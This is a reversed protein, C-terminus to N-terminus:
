RPPVLIVEVAFGERSQKALDDALGKPSRVVFDPDYVLCILHKYGGHQSYWVADQSLQKGLEKDGLQDRTKKLEIVIGEQRLVLDMRTSSGAHSPTPEEERVEEFSVSLLARLLDHADHEDAVLFPSRGGYRHRLELVVSHFRRCVRRVDEVAPRPECAQPHGPVRIQGRALGSKLTQLVALADEQAEKLSVEDSMRIITELAAEAQLYRQSEVGLLQKALDVSESMWSRFEPPLRRSVYGAEVDDVPFTDVRWRRGSEILEDVYKKVDM